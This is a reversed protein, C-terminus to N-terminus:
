KKRSDIFSPLQQLPRLRMREERQWPVRQFDYHRVQTAADWEGLLHDLLQLCEFAVSMYNEATIGPVYVILDLSDKSLVPLFSLESLHRAQGNVSVAMRSLEASDMRQRFATFQWGELPPAKKVLEKLLPFLRIDGDATFIIHPARSGPRMELHVGSDVRLLQQQIDALLRTPDSTTKSLQEENRQFWTWFQVVPDQGYVALGATVMLVLLCIRRLLMMCYLYRCFAFFWGRPAPELM